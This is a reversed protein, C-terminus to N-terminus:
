ELAGYKNIWHHHIESWRDEISEIMEEKDYQTDNSYWTYMMTYCDKKYEKCDVGYVSILQPLLCETLYTNSNEYDGVSLPISTVNKRWCPDYDSLYERYWWSLLDIKWVLHIIESWNFDYKHLYLNENNKQHDTTKSYASEIFSALSYYLGDIYEKVLKNQSLGKCSSFCHKGIETPVVMDQPYLTHYVGMLNLTLKDSKEKDSYKNWKTIIKKFSDLNIHKKAKGYRALCNLYPDKNPDSNDEDITYREEKLWKSFSPRNDTELESYYMIFALMLLRDEWKSQDFLEGIEKQFTQNFSYGTKKVIEEYIPFRPLIQELNTM